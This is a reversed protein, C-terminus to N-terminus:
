DTECKSSNSKYPQNKCANLIEVNMEYTDDRVWRGSMEWESTCMITMINIDNKMVMM